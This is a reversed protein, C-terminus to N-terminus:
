TEQRRRRGVADDPREADPRRAALPRISDSRLDAIDRERTKVAKAPLTALYAPSGKGERRSGRGDHGPRDANGVEVKEVGALKDDDRAGGDHGEQHHEQDLVRLIPVPRGNLGLEVLEDPPACGLVAVDADLAQGLLFEVLKPM